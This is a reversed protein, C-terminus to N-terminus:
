AIICCMILRKGTIESGTKQQRITQDLYVTKHIKVHSKKTHRAQIQIFRNHMITSNM